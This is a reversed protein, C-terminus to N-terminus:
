DGDPKRLERLWEKLESVGELPQPTGWISEGASGRLRARKIELALVKRTASTSSGDEVRVLLPTFNRIEVISGIYRTLRQGRNASKLCEEVVEKPIRGPVEHQRDSLVIWFYDKPE